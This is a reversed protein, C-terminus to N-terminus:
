VYFDRHLLNRNIAAIQLVRVKCVPIQVDEPTHFITFASIIHQFCNSPSLDPRINVAAFMEPAETWSLGKVNAFSLRVYLSVSLFFMQVNVYVSQCTDVTCVCILETSRLAGCM